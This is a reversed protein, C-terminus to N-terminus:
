PQPESEQPQVPDPLRGPVTGPLPVTGPPPVTGTELLQPLSARILDSPDQFSRATAILARFRGEIRINFHFPIAALQHLVRGVIMARVGGSPDRTGAPNRAVGDMDIRTIFEGDLAGDLTLVLRSYRLSKLADFALVGYAGLDRDTLEGVYSLTGGEPRAVLRGGIIRGGAQTFQMPIVGDYIGTAAINSFQLQQIFRAADLGEIRFTLSKTSPRSFDLITPELTLTGGALPWRGSEVAVHSNPRLQYRVIGDYVDIGPQTLRIRAEQHPASTLGLLDTFEIRTALGQVPGFPAALNMDATSFSGSSRSGRADWEIRGQGAISGDVLAVVGLTLPTLAEPQFAPTFRLQPVDLLAHGAGTALDHDITALAVRTGSAPHSLTGTAHIRNGTLALRFDEGALPHFRAPQRRDAVALRGDLALDGGRLRWSGAGGSVLLPVNALDGSLDEFRGALGGRGFRGSLAGVDLRNIRGAPGLRVALRAATFGAADVRVRDAALALPTSGLRGALRPGRLEAGFRGNAVMARGVPCLALRTPGIGLSQVQLAQFAAAVCREGLVFGGAGFRGSLPLALGRVRGGRFPGDLLATTRFATRGDPATTFAIEGLALRAGGATMPAIRGTGRIAAGASARALRFYADPFGGGSLALEGDLLLAGSPWRYAIGTGGRQVLRAGSRSALSLGRLRVEGAGNAGILVLDAAAGAGDSGAARVAAALREGIPGLPSGRTGRLAAAIRGADRWTVGSAAAAGDLALRGRRMSAAYRGAFRLRAARLAEVEAAGTTVNVTGITGEADGSFGVHGEVAAMRQPGLRMAAIRTAAAGRWQDLGPALMARLAFLPREAALGGGCALRALAAPGQVYPKRDAVRLSLRAIPRTLVCEGVRLERAVVAIAGRFGDSLNGRGSFALGIRGAPTALELAADRVDVRQDPLRFPEASPPGLLKDVEGLRLRGQEIRGKMRVGRATILGIRPGTFGLLVQVEVHRATLDPRRPDGIVLNEFIQSGFGIRKVEYSARVGRRSLEADVYNRALQVRMPWLIAFAAALLLALALAAIGLRRPWRRRRGGEIAPEDM